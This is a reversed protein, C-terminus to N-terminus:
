GRLKRGIMVPAWVGPVTGTACRLNGGNIQLEYTFGAELNNWQLPADTTVTAWELVQSGSGQEWVEGRFLTFDAETLQVTGPEELWVGVREASTEGSLEEIARLILEAHNAGARGAELLSGAAWRRRNRGNAIKEMQVGAGGHTFV